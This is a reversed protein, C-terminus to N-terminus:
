CDKYIAVGRGDKFNGALLRIFDVIQWVALGGFTAAKLAGAAIFRPNGRALYFYDAGFGGLFFSFLITSAHSKQRYNCVGGDSDDMYAEDCKCRLLPRGDVSEDNLECSGHNCDDRSGIGTCNSSSWHKADAVFFVITILALALWERVM